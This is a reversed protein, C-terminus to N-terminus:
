RMPASSCRRRIELGFAKGTKLNIVLLFRAPFTVPLESFRIVAHKM